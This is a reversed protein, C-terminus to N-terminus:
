SGGFRKHTTSATTARTAPSPPTSPAPGAASPCRSWGRRWAPARPGCSSASTPPPRSRGPLHHRRQLPTPRHAPGARDGRRPHQQRPRHGRRVALPDRRLRLQGGEDHDYILRGDSTVSYARRYLIDYEGPFIPIDYVRDYSPNGAITPYETGTWSGFSVSELRAAIGTVQSRLFVSVDTPSPDGPFTTGGNYLLQGSVRAPAIEVNLANIGPGIVVGSQLLIEGSAYNGGEDHDYVLRGDSTVSYARRYIIDYVGPFVPIDYVRDYSPNGGIVPYEAGTWSGFSVSELRAAFGTQQSRLFVSVDTPSPDGPFAVGGNYLLQGTVRAPAVDIGSDFPGPTCTACDGTVGGVCAGTGDCADGTTCAIGDSCGTGAAATVM